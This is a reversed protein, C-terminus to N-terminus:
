RQHWCLPPSHPFLVCPRFLSLFSRCPFFYRWVPRRCIGYDGVVASGVLRGGILVSAGVDHEIWMEGGAGRLNDDIDMGDIMGMGVM